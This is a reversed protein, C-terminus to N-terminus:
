FAFSSSEPILLELDVSYRESSFTNLSAFVQTLQNKFGVSQRRRLSACYVKNLYKCKQKKAYKLLGIHDNKGHHNQFLLRWGFSHM